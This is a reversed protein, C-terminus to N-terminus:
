NQSVQLIRSQTSNSQRLLNVVEDLQPSPLAGMQQQQLQQLVTSMARAYDDGIKKLSTEIPSGEMTLRDLEASITAAIEPSMRSGIRAGGVSFNTGIGSNVAKLSLQVPIRKGDPLPVIAEPGHLKVVGEKEFFIGGTNFSRLADEWGIGAKNGYEDTAQGAQVGPANPLGRWTRALNQLFRAKSEPTPNSAYQDYGLRRILADALRDQTARSFKDDLGVGSSGVLDALTNYMFQYKGAAQPRKEAIRKKQLELVQGVTMNELDARDGGSFVNYDGGSEVRGIMNRIAGLQAAQAAGTGGRGGSGYIGPRTRGGGPQAVGGVAAATGGTDGGATATGGGVLGGGLGMEQMQKNIATTIRSIATAFNPLIRLSLANMQRGIGELAKQAGVASDTLTDNGKQQQKLQDALVVEGDILRSTRFDEAEAFKIIFGVADGTALSLERQIRISQNSAQQLRHFAETPGIIGAELERLVGQAGMRLVKQAEESTPYNTMLDRVGRALEPFRALLTQFDMMAKAETGRGEEVMKSYKARFRSESLAAQQQKQVAERQMGTLKTLTDLERAYNAAGRALEQTSRGQTLGLRTQQEVFGAAAEGIADASFGLRRLEDGMGQRDDIIAGVIRSFEEAGRGVTGGFRSLADANATVTRKFGELSMGSRIFQEQVGTMGRVTLAGVNSLEQFTDVATQLRENLFKAAEAAMRITASFVSGVYPIAEAAKAAANAMSDIIPNLSTFKTEGRALGGALGAASKGIEKLSAGTANLRNGWVMLAKQSEVSAGRAMILRNAFSRTEKEAEIQERALSRAREIAAKEHAEKASEYRRMASASSGAAAALKKLDADSERLSKQFKRERDYRSEVTSNLKILARAMDLAAKAGAENARALEQAARTQDEEAM